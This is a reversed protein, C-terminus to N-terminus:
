EMRGHKLMEAMDEITVKGESICQCQFEFHEIFRAQRIDGWGYEHKMVWKLATVIWQMIGKTVSEKIQFALKEIAGKPIELPIEWYGRVAIEAKLAKLGEAPDSHQEMIELAKTMGQMRWEFVKDRAM